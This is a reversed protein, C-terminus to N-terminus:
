QNAEREPERLWAEAAEPNNQRWQDLIFERTNKQTRSGRGDEGTTSFWPIPKLLTLIPPSTRLNLKSALYSNQRCLPN